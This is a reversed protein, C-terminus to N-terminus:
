VAEDELDLDTPDVPERLNWDITLWGGLLRRLQALM